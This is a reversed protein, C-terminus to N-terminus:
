ASPVPAPAPTLAATATALTAASANMESVISEVATTDGPINDIQATLATLQSQLATISATAATQYATIGASLTAYATTLDTVFQDTAMQKTELAAIRTGFATLQSQLSKDEGVLWNIWDIAWQSLSGQQTM